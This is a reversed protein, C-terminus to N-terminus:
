AGVADVKDEDVKSVILKFSLEGIQISADARLLTQASIRHGDVLVGGASGIDQIWFGERDRAVIAHYRSVSPDDLVIDNEESRGIRAKPQNVLFLRSGSHGELVLSANLPPLLALTYEGAAHLPATPSDLARFLKTFEGPQKSNSPGSEPSEFMQHTDSAAAPQAAVYARFM